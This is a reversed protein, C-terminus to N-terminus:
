NDFRVKADSLCLKKASGALVDCREKAVLYDADRKEVAADQYAESSKKVAAEQADVAKENAAAKAKATKMEAEAEASQSVKLAKAQQVCVDKVNGAKDDCYEVAVAYDADANALRAEYRAKISPQYSAELEAKAVSMRGKAQAICIDNANGALSDCGAKGAKYETEINGELFQYQKKSMEAAMAGVSFALGVALALTGIKFNKM